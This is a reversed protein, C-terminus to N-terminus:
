ATVRAVTVRVMGGIEEAVEFTIRWKGDDVGLVDALGDFGSKMAAIMNDRDRVRRDPPVFVVSLALKAADITGAGQEKATWACSSRYAAKAKALARWHLRANPSLEKPPWPLILNV